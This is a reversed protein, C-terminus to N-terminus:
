VTDLCVEGPFDMGLHLNHGMKLEVGWGELRPNDGGVLVGAVETVQEDLHMALIVDWFGMALKYTGVHRTQKCVSGAASIDGCYELQRIGLTGARAPAWVLSLWASSLRIRSAILTVM